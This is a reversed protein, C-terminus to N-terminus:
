KERSKGGKRMTQPGAPKKSEGMLVEKAKALLVERRWLQLEERSAEWKENVKYIPMDPYTKKWHLVTVHSRRLFAAIGEMGSLIDSQDQRATEVM